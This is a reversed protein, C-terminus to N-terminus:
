METWCGLDTIHLDTARWVAGYHGKMSLLRKLFIAFEQTIDLM